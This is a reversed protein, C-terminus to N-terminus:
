ALVTGAPGAASVERAYIEPYAGRTLRQLSPPLSATVLQSVVHTPGHTEPVDHLYIFMEVAGLASDSTPVVVTHDGYDRHLDQEYDAAGTYKAWNHLEYVRVASSNLLAEALGVLPQSVGLLSWEVSAFPFYDIGASVRGAFRARLDPDRSDHYQEATPFMLGLESLAPRLDHGTLFGSLVVYGHQRFHAAAADLAGLSSGSM